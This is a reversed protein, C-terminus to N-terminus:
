LEWERWVRVYPHKANPVMHLHGREDKIVEAESVPCIYKPGHKKLTAGRGTKRMAAGCIPCNM